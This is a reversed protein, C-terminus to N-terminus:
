YRHSIGEKYGTDDKWMGFGIPNALKWSIYGLIDKLDSLKMNGFKKVEKSFITYLKQYNKQSVSRLMPSNSLNSALLLAKEWDNQELYNVWKNWDNRQVNVLKKYLRDAIEIKEDTDM